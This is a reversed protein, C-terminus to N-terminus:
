RHPNREIPAEESGASWRRLLLPWLAITGPLITLRFKWGSGRAGPDIHDVGRVIFTLGFALGLLVYARLAVVFAIIIQEYM